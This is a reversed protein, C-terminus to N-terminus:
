FNIDHQRAAIIQPQILLCAPLCVHHFVGDMGDSSLEDGWWMLQLQNMVVLGVMWLM